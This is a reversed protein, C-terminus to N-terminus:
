RKVCTTACTHDHSHASLWRYDEAFALEWREADRELDATTAASGDPRQVHLFRGYEDCVCIQALSPAHAAARGDPQAPLECRHPVVYDTGLNELLQYGPMLTWAMGPSLCTPTRPALPDGNPRRSAYSGCWTRPPDSETIQVLPRRTADDAELDGRPTTLRSNATPGAKGPTFPSPALNLGLQRGPLVSSENQRTATHQILAETTRAVCREDARGSRSSAVDAM